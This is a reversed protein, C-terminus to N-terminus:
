ADRETLTVSWEVNNEPTVGDVVYVTGSAMTITDGRRPTTIDAKKIRARTIREATQSEIGFTESGDDVIAYITQASADQATYTVSQGMATYLATAMSTEITEWTM